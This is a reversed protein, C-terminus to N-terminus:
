SKKTKAPPFLFSELCFSSLIRAHLYEVYTSFLNTGTTLYAGSMGAEMTESVRAEKERRNKKKGRLDKLEVSLRAEERLQRLEERLQRLEVVFYSDKNDLFVSAPIEEARALWAKVAAAAEKIEKKVDQLEQRVDELEASSM